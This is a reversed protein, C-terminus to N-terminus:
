LIMYFGYITSKAVLPYWYNYPRCLLHGPWVSSCSRKKTSHQISKVVLSIRLVARKKPFREEESLLVMHFVPILFFTFHQICHKFTMSNAEVVIIFFIYILCFFCEEQSNVRPGMSREHGFVKKSDDARRSRRANYLFELTIEWCQAAPDTWFSRTLDGPIWGWVVLSILSLYGRM